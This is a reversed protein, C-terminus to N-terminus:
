KLQFFRKMGPQSHKFDLVINGGPRNPTVVEVKLIEVEAALKLVTFVKM